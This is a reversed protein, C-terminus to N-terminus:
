FAELRQELRYRGSPLNKEITIRPGILSDPAVIRGPLVIVQIGLSARAGILCGLKERGSDVATGDIMVKVTERDLRHNSTRVMAGLYAERELKSDAVFCMPGIAVGEEVLAFKLEASFGIRVGDAILTPGRIMAQNGILCDAGIAVPGRVYAGRCLITRAGILVPGTSEDIVAGDDIVASPDIAPGGRAAADAIRAPLADLELWWM